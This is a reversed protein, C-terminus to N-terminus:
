WTVDQRPMTKITQFAYDKRNHLFRAIQGRGDSKRFNTLPKATKRFAPTAPLVGVNLRERPLRAHDARMEHDSGNMGRRRYLVAWDAQSVPLKDLLQKLAEKGARNATVMTHFYVSSQKIPSSRGARYIEWKWSSPPPARNKVVVSYDTRDFHLKDM